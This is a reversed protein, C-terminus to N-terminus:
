RACITLAYLSGISLNPVVTIPSALELQLRIRVRVRPAAALPLTQPASAVEGAWMDHVIGSYRSIIEKYVLIANSM